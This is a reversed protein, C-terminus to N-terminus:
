TTTLERAAAYSASCPHLKAISIQGTGALVHCQKRRSIVKIFELGPSVLAGSHFPIHDNQHPLLLTDHLLEPWILNRIFIRTLERMM